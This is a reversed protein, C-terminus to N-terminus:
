FLIKSRFLFFKGEVRFWLGCGDKNFYNQRGLPCLHRQLTILLFSLVCCRTLFLYILQEISVTILSVKISQQFM